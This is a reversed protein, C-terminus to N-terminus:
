PSAARSWLIIGKLKRHPAIPHATHVRYPTTRECTNGSLDLSIGVMAHRDTRRALIISGDWRLRIEDPCALVHLVLELSDRFGQSRLERGHRAEIHRLGFGAERVHDHEGQQLRIPGPALFCGLASATAAMAPTIQGFAMSGDPAAVYTGPDAQPEM